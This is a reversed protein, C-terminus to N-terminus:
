DLLRFVSVAEPLGVRWVSVADQREDDMEGTALKEEGAIYGGTQRIQPLMTGTVWERFAQASPKRSRLVLTYLGSESVIVAPRGSGLNFKAQEDGRLARCAVTPNAIEIMRCVDAAVFWPM